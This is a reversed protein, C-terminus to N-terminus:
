EDEAMIHEIHASYGVAVLNGMVACPGAETEVLLLRLLIRRLLSRDLLLLLNLILETNYRHLIQASGSPTDEHTTYTNHM